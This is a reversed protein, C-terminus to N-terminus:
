YIAKAANIAATKAVSLLHKAKEPDTKAIESIRPTMKQIANTASEVALPSVEVKPTEAKKTEKEEHTTETETHTLSKAVEPEKIKEIVKVPEKELVKEM